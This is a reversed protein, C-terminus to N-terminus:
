GLCLSLDCEFFQCPSEPSGWSAWAALGQGPSGRRRSSTVEEEMEDDAAKGEDSDDDDNDDYNYDYMSFRSKCDCSIPLGLSHGGGMVMWGEEEKGLGQWHEGNKKQNEQNETFFSM